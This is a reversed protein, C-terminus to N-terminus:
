FANCFAFHQKIVCNFHVYWHTDGLVIYNTHLPTYKLGKLVAIARQMVYLVNGVVDLCMTPQKSPSVFSFITTKYICFWGIRRYYM